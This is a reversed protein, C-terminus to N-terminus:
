GVYVARKMTMRRVGSPNATLDKVKKEWYAINKRIYSMNVRTVKKDGIEYHQAGSIIKREAKIWEDLMTKATTLDM